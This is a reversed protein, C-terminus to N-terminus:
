AARVVGPLDLRRSHREFVQRVFTPMGQLRSIWELLEPLHRRALTNVLERANHFTEDQDLPATLLYEGIYLFQSSLVMSDQRIAFPHLGRFGTQALREVESRRAAVDANLRTQHDKQPVDLILGWTGMLLIYERFILFFEQRRALAPLRQLHEHEIKVCEWKNREIQFGGGPDGTLGALLRYIRINADPNLQRSWAAIATSLYPLAPSQQARKIDTFYVLVDYALFLYTNFRDQAPDHALVRESENLVNEAEPHKKLLLQLVWPYLWLSAMPVWRALVADPDSSGISDRTAWLDILADVEMRAPAEAPVRSGIAVATEHLAQSLETGRAAKSVHFLQLLIGPIQEVSAATLGDLLVSSDKLVVEVISTMDRDHAGRAFVAPVALQSQLADGLGGGIAAEAAECRFYGHLAQSRKAHHHGLELNALVGVSDTRRALASVSQHLSTQRQPDPDRTGVCVTHFRLRRIDVFARLQPLDVKRWILGCLRLLRDIREYLEPAELAAESAIPPLTFGLTDSTVAAVGNLRTLLASREDGDVADLASRCAMVSAALAVGAIERALGERVLDTDSRTALLPIQGAILAASEALDIVDLVRARRDSGVADLIDSVTGLVDRDCRLALCWLGLSFTMFDVISVSASQPASIRDFARRCRAAVDTGITLGDLSTIFLVESSSAMMALWISRVCAYDAVVASDGGRGAMARLEAVVEGRMDLPLSLLDAFAVVAEEGDAPSTAQRQARPVLQLVLRLVDDDGLMAHAEWALRALRQQRGSVSKPEGNVIHDHAVQILPVVHTFLGTRLCASLTTMAAEALRSEVTTILAADTLTGTNANRLHTALKETWFADAALMRNDDASSQSQQTGLTDERGLKDQWYLAWYVHILAADPLTLAASASVPELAQQVETSVDIVPARGEIQALSEFEAPLKRLGDRIRTPNLQPARLLLMLVRNRVVDKATFDSVLSDVRLRLKGTTFSLIYLLDLTTYLGTAPQSKRHEAALTRLQDAEPGGLGRCILKITTLTTDGLDLFRRLASRQEPTLLLQEWSTTRRYGNVNEKTGGSGEAITARAAFEARGREELVVWLEAGAHGESFSTFYRDIAAKTIHDVVGWRDAIVLRPFFEGQLVTALDNLFDSFNDHQEWEPKRKIFGEVSGKLTRSPLVAHLFVLGLAVLASAAATYYVLPSTLVQALPSNDPVQQDKVTELVEAVVGLVLATAVAAIAPWSKWTVFWDALGRKAALTMFRSHGVLDAIVPLSDATRQDKIRWIKFNWPGSTVTRAVTEAAWTLGDDAHISITLAEFWNRGTKVGDTILKRVHDALLVSQSSEHFGQQVISRAVRRGPRDFDAEDEVPIFFAKNM